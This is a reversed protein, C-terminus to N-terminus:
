RPSPTDGGDPLGGDTTGKTGRPPLKLFINATSGCDVGRVRATVPHVEFRGGWHWAKGRCPDRVSKPDKLFRDVLKVAWEPAEDLSKLRYIAKRHNSSDKPRAASLFKSYSEAAQTLTMGEYAPLVRRRKDLVHLMAPHDNRPRWGAEGLLMYM